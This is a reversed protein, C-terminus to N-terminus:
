EYTDHDLDRDKNTPGLVVLVHLPFILVILFICNFINYLFIIMPVCKETPFHWHCNRTSLHMCVIVLIEFLVSVPHYQMIYICINDIIKHYRSRIVCIYGPSFASTFHKHYCCANKLCFLGSDCRRLFIGGVNGMELSRAYQWSIDHFSRIDWYEHVNKLAM